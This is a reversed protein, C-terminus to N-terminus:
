REDLTPPVMVVLADDDVWASLSRIVCVEDGDLEFVRPEEFHVSIRPGRLHDDDGSRPM